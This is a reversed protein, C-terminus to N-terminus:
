PSGGPLQPRLKKRLLQRARALRSMVTGEPVASVTAIERYSLGEVDRLIVIERYRLPLAEIAGYLESLSVSGILQTEADPSPDEVELSEEFPALRKERSLLTHSVNRVIQLFWARPEEVRADFFFRYARISAEQVVDEADAADGTLWRALSYAVGLHALVERRFRAGDARADSRTRQEPKEPEGM